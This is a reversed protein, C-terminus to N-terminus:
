RYPRLVVSSSYDIDHKNLHRLLGFIYADINVGAQACLSLMSMSLSNNTIRTTTSREGPDYEVCALFSMGRDACANCLELLKPAIEADFWAENSM